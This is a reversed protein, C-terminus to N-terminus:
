NTYCLLLYMMAPTQYNFVTQNHDFFFTKKLLGNVKGDNQLCVSLQHKMTKATTTTYSFGAKQTGM